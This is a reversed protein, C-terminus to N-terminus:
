RPSVALADVRGTPVDHAARRLAGLIEDEDPLVQAALHVAAPIRTERAGIRVPPSSLPVGSEVVRAVIEAGVGGTTHAEHVVVLRGTRQVSALISDLDLPRIWRADIVEASVGEGAAREAAALVRHQMAGWTVVTVHSGSRRIQSGGVPAIEGGLRVQQKGAHYLARNEIVVTPDDSWISSLLLDYADQHTTPMCVQLGPIHAFLAELSQSHQACAGPANGQQTRITLPASLAGRSIYRVNAAQNVIQDFAVLAFDAWMIEAIPRRGFMASGVASGLIAAESIPTDFVREGFRKRLGKTVGFVGGPIAVDEGFLLTEEREDLARALAANVCEAYSLTKEIIEPM